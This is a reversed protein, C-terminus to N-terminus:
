VNRRLDSQSFWPGVKAIDVDDHAAALHLPTMRESNYLNVRAGGEM